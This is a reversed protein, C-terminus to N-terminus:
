KSFRLANNGFIGGSKLQAVLQDQWNKGHMAYDAFSGKVDM